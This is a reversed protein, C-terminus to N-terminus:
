YHGNPINDIKMEMDDDVFVLPSPPLEAEHVVLDEIEIENPEEALAIGWLNNEENGGLGWEDQENNNNQPPM